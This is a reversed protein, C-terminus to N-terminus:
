LEGMQQLKAREAELEFEAQTKRRGYNQSPIEREADAQLAARPVLFPAVKSVAKRLGVADAGQAVGVLFGILFGFLVSEILAVSLLATGTTAGM